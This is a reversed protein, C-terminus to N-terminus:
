RRGAAKRIREARTSERRSSFGQRGGKAPPGVAAVWYADFVEPYDDLLRAM